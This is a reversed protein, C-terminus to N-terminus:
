RISVSTSSASAAATIAPSAEVAVKTLSVPGAASRTSRRCAARTSRMASSSSPSFGLRGTARGVWPRKRRASTVIEQGSALVPGEMGFMRAATAPLRKSHRSTV